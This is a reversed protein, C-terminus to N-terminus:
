ISLGGDIVMTQGTIYRGGEGLLFGAMRAVDEPQGIRGLPTAKVLQRLHKDPLSSTMGTEIIGPAIANIRINFRAMEKALSRTMGIQAAKTASYCTQGINGRIASVSSINIICGDGEMMMPELLFHNFYFLGNLNTDVVSQWDGIRMNIQLDNIATGANNILAYPTGYDKLVKSCVAEVDEVSSVDCPLCACRHEAGALSALLQEAQEKKNRYTFVVDFDDIVERVIAAGIGNSGATVLVLPRPM